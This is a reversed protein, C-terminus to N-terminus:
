GLRNAEALDRMAAYIWGHRESYFDGPTVIGDIASVVSPDILAAGLLAQEIETNAPPDANHNPSPM